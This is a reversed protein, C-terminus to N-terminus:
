SSWSGNDCDGGIGVDEPGEAGKENLGLGVWSPWGKTPLISQNISQTLSLTGGFVNYTM